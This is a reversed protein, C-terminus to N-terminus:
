QRTARQEWLWQLAEHLKKASEGHVPDNHGGAFAIERKPGAYADAVRRQYAPPVLQDQQALLFVAPAQVRGANALADLETPV